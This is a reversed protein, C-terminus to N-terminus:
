RWSTAQQEADRDHHRQDHEYPRDSTSEARTLVVSAPVPNADACRDAQRRDGHLRDDLEAELHRAVRRQEDHKGGDGQM